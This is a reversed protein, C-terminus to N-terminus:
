LFLYKQKFLWYKNENISQDLTIFNDEDVLLEIDDMQDDYIKELNCSNDYLYNISEFYKIKKHEIIKAFENYLLWSTSYLERPKSNIPNGIIKQSGPIKCKLEDHIEKEIKKDNINGCMIIIIKWNCNYKQNIKLLRESLNDTYGIKFAYQNDYHCWIRIFYILLKNTHIKITNCINIENMVSNLALKNNFMFKNYFDNGTNYLDYKYKKKILANWKENNNIKIEIENNNIKTTIFFLKNMLESFIYIQNNLKNTEKNYIVM